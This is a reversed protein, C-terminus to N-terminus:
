KPTTWMGRTVKGTYQNVHFVKVYIGAPTNDPGRFEFKYTDETELVRYPPQASALPINADTGHVSRIYEREYAQILAIAQQHSTITRNASQCATTALVVVLILITRMCTM